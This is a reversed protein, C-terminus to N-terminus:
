SCTSADFCSVSQASMVSADPPKPIKTATWATGNWQASYSSQSAARDWVGSAMCFTATPCSVGTLQAGKSGAPQPAPNETWRTGDRRELLPNVESGYRFGVAFCHSTGSCAIDRITDGNGSPPAAIPVTSWAKGNWRQAILTTGNRSGIAVCSHSPCAVTF